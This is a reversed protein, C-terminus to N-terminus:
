RIRSQRRACRRSRHWAAMRIRVDPTRSHDAFDERLYTQRRSLSSMGSGPPCFAAEATRCYLLRRATQLDNPPRTRECIPRIQDSTRWSRNPLILARAASTMATDAVDAQDLETGFWMGTQQRGGSYEHTRFRGNCTRGQVLGHPRALVLQTQNTPPQRGPHGRDLPGHNRSENLLQRAATSALSEYHHTTVAGLQETLRCRRRHDLLRCM